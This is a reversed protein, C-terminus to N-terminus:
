FIGFIWLFLTGVVFIRGNGIIHISTGSHLWTCLFCKEATICYSLFVRETYCVGYSQAVVVVGIKGRYFVGTYTKMQKVVLFLSLGLTLITEWLQCLLILM